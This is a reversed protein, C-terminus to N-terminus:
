IRTVKVRVRAQTATSNYINIYYDTGSGAVATIRLMSATQAFVCNGTTYISTITSGSIVAKGCGLSSEIEILYSAGTTNLPLNWQMTAAMQMDFVISQIADYMRIASTTTNKYNTTIFNNYDSNIYYAYFKQTGNCLPIYATSSGSAYGSYYSAAYNASSGGSQYSHIVNFKTINDSVFTSDNQTNPLGNQLFGGDVNDVIINIAKKSFVDGIYRSVDGNIIQTPDQLVTVNKVTLGNIWNVPANNGFGFVYNTGTTDGYNTITMNSVTINSLTQTSDQLVTSYIVAQNTALEVDINNIEVNNLGDELVICYAEVDSSNKKTSRFDSVIINDVRVNSVYYMELIQYINTALTTLDDTVYKTINKAVVNKQATGASSGCWKVGNCNVALINNARVNGAQCYIVREVCFEGKINDLVVNSVGSELLLTDKGNSGYGNNKCLWTLAQAQTNKISIDFIGIGTGSHIYVLTEANVGHVHEITFNNGSPVYLAMGISDSYITSFKSGDLVTATQLFCYYRSVKPSQSATCQIKVNQINYLVNKSTDNYYFMYYGSETTSDETLGVNTKITIDTLNFYSLNQLDFRVNGNLIITAGCGYISVGSYSAVDSYNLLYTKGQQLQIAPFKTTIAQNIATQFAISDSTVGDGIAGYLEVQLATNAVSGMSDLESSLLPSDPDNVHQWDIKYRTM